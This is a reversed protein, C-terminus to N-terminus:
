LCSSLAKTLNRVSNHTTYRGMSLRLSSRIARDDMGIASLVHSPEDHSASCASGVAVQFGQEDLLMMLRENDTGPMTLHVINPLTHKDGNIVCGPVLQELEDICQTRLKSLRNVEYERMSQSLKLAAALGIIGAVNETGSRLGREQGGGYLQPKLDIGTRVYLAGSQKPGYIKGGNVTMLDVGLRHVLLHLYNGAQSADTHFYLPLKNASKQRETRIDRIIEAIQRLPQVTGLENNAYMVSILVTSDTIMRKLKDIDVRGAPLVPIEAHKYEGAPRLVSEHEVSSVLMEADPFRQMIGHIALNNAETGGATFVVEPAKCGFIEAITKRASQIATSVEKALVYQASPNYFMGQEYPRMVRQVNSDLPTAAAYDFYGTYATM